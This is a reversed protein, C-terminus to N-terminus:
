GFGVVGLGCAVDFRVNTSLPWAFGWLCVLVWVSVVCFICCLCLGCWFWVGCGLVWCDVVVFVVGGLGLCFVWDLCCDTWWPLYGWLCVM